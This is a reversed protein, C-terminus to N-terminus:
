GDTAVEAPAQEAGAVFAELEPLTPMADACTLRSTVLAGAGSALRGTRALSWGGVLGAALAGGFADGAGSGCRPTIPVPDIVVREDATALLVGDAGMKVVALSVGRALLADAAAHPESSGVAMACESRNGVVVSSLEIARAAAATAEAPDSWLSPRLDLDLVTHPRRGRQELWSMATRATAGAALTAGSTWLVRASAITDADVADAEIRTDPADAARLFTITPEAPDELAVLVVPTRGDPRVTVYRTDVGLAALKALTYEGLPDAGVATVVASRLGLRAAAVAVNSPSGGISKVFTQPELFSAGPEQAYLDVSIRGLALLDLAGATM